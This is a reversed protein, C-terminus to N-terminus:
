IRISQNYALHLFYRYKKCIKDYWYDNTSLKSIVSNDIDHRLFEFTRKNCEVYMGYKPNASKNVISRDFDIFLIDTGNFMINGSHLDTHYVGNKHLKHLKRFFNNLFRKNKAYWNVLNLDIHNPNLFKAYFEPNAIKFKVLDYYLNNDVTCHEVPISTFSIDLLKNDIYYGLTQYNKTTLDEIYLVLIDEKLKILIDSTLNKDQLRDYIDIEKFFKNIKKNNVNCKKIFYKM